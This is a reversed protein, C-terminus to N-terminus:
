DQLLGDVARQLLAPDDRLVEAPSAGALWGNGTVYWDWMAWPGMGYRHLRATVARADPDLEFADTLQFTPVLVQGRHDVAVLDGADRRRRVWRRTTNPDRMTARALTDIDVVKSRGLLEARAQNVLRAQEAARRDIQPEAVAM